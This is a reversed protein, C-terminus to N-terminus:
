YTTRFNGPGALPGAAVAVRPGVHTFPFCLGM